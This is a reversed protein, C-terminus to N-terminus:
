IASDFIHKFVTHDMVDPNKQGGCHGDFVKKSITFDGYQNSM